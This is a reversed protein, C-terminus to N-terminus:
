EQQKGMGQCGLKRIKEKTIYGIEIKKITPTEQTMDAQNNPAPRNLVEAFHNRWRKRIDDDKTLLKGEKDKVM